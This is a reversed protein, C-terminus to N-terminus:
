ARPRPVSVRELAARAEGHPANWYRCLIEALGRLEDFGVPKVLYALAGLEYARIVDGTETSSTLVIVPLDRLRSDRRMWELVEFGSRKPLKLDLLVFEPLPFSARDAFAGQGALYTVAELGDRVVQLPAPASVKRFARELLLVDTENDEVLLIPKRPPTL